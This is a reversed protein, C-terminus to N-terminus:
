IGGRIRKKQSRSIMRGAHRERRTKGRTGGGEGGVGRLCEGRGGEVAKAEAGGGDNQEEGEEEDGAENGKGRARLREM